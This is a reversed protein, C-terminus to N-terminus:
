KIKEVIAGNIYKRDGELDYSYTDAQETDSYCKVLIIGDDFKTYAYEVVLGDDTSSTLFGDSGFEYTIGYEEDRWTGVLEDVIEFNEYAELPNEGEGPELELDNGYMDSLVLKKGTFVNGKIKYDFSGYLLPTYQYIVAASLVNSDQASYLDYQGEVTTTGLTVACVGDERFDYCVRQSYSHTVSAVDESEVPSDLTETYEGDLIYNWQGVISQDFFLKWVVISLLAAAFVGLVVPLQVNKVIKRRRPLVPKEKESAEASGETEPQEDIEKKDEDKDNFNKAM